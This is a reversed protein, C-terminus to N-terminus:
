TAVMGTASQAWSWVRFRGEPTKCVEIPRTGDFPGSGHEAALWIAVGDDAYAERLAEVVQAMTIDGSM